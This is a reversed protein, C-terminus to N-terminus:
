TIGHRRLIDEVDGLDDDDDASKGRRSKAPATAPAKASAKAPAAPDPRTALQRGTRSTTGSTGTAGTAAPLTRTAGQASGTSQKDQGGAM